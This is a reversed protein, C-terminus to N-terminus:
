TWMFNRLDVVRKVQETIFKEHLDDLIGYARVYDWYKGENHYRQKLEYVDLGEVPVFEAKGDEEHKAFNIVVNKYEEFIPDEPCYNDKNKHCNKWWEYLELMEAKANKHQESCEWNVYNLENEVFQCLVEFCVDVLVESRDWWTHGLYRPKITTYRYWLWCKFRYIFDHFKVNLAM